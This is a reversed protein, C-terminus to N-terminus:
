IVGGHNKHYGYKTEAEKRANIADKKDKFYGLHKTKCDVMITARWKNRVEIWYIGTSGSKNNKSLSANKQNEQHTCERLNKWKNNSRNHDIHDVQDKPFKGTVYLFALRHAKYRIGNVQLDVYREIKNLSGAISWKKTSGVSRKFHFLGTSPMYHLVKKLEEQTIM